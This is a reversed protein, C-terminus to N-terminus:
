QSERNRFVCLYQPKKAYPSYYQYFNDPRLCKKQSTSYHVLIGDEKLFNPMLVVLNELGCSAKSIGVDASLKLDAWDKTLVIAEEMKLEKIALSLFSSKKVNREVLFVRLDPRLIKMVVGAFGAGAGLDVLEEIEPLFVHLVAADYINRMIALDTETKSTLHVVKNFRLLIKYYDILRTKREEDLPTLNKQLSELFDENM